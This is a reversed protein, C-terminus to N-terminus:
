NVTRALSAIREFEEGEAKVEEKLRLNCGIHYYRVHGNHGETVCVEGVEIQEKCHKCLM